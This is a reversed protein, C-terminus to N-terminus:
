KKVYVWGKFVKNEPVTLIYWYTGENLEGKSNRGDWDSNYNPSSYILQDKNNYVKLVSGPKLGKIEFYDNFGDGNPTFVNPIVVDLEIYTIKFEEQFPCRWKDFIEVLYDATETAFLTPDDCDTCSLGTTKNWSYGKFSETLKLPIETNYHIVTDLRLIPKGSQITDCNRIRVMYKNKSVCNFSDTLSAIYQVPGTITAEPKSCTNCNLGTIPQWLYFKSKPSEFSIKQEPYAITDLALKPSVLTSSDCHNTLKFRETLQCLYKDTLTVMYETNDYIRANTIQCTDCRLGVTPTWKYRKAVSAKLPITHGPTILTDLMLKNRYKVITDCDRMKIVFKERPTCYYKDTYTVEYTITDNITAVPSQCSSCNLDKYPSWKHIYGEPATLTINEGPYDAKLINTKVDTNCKKKLKFREKRMCGYTDMLVATIETDDSISVTADRNNKGTIINNRPYWWYLEAESASAKLNVPVGPYVLTDLRLVDPKKTVTDCNVALCPRPMLEPEELRFNTFNGLQGNDNNGWRWFAGGQTKVFTSVSNEWGSIAVHEVNNLTEVKTLNGNDFLTANDHVYLTGDNKIAAFNWLEDYISKVDSIKLKYPLSIDPQYYDNLTGWIWVTGDDKLAYGRYGGAAIDVINSLTSVKRPKYRYAHGTHPKDGDLWNSGWTWVTGDNCLAVVADAGAEVKKVNEIEVKIITDKYGWYGPEIEPTDGWIWVTGDARLAVYYLYSKHFNSTASFSSTIGIVSDIPIKKLSYQDYRNWQWLTGDSRIAMHGIGDVNTISYLGKVKVPMYRTTYTGDGLDGYVNNGMASVTSDECIYFVNSNSLGVSLKQALIISSLSAFLLMLTTRFLLINANTM